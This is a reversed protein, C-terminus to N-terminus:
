YRITIRRCADCFYAEVSTRGDVMFCTLKVFGDENKAHELASAVELTPLTFLQM